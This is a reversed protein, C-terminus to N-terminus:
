AVLPCAGTDFTVRHSSVYSHAHGQCGLRSYCVCAVLLAQRRSCAVPRVKGLVESARELTAVFSRCWRVLKAAAAPNTRHDTALRVLIGVLGAAESLGPITSHEAIAEASRLVVEAISVTGKSHGEGSDILSRTSVTRNSLRKGGADAGDVSDAASDISPFQIATLSGSQPVVHKTQAAVGNGESSSSLTSSATTGGSPDGGTTGTPGAGAIVAAYAPPVSIVAATARNISRDADRALGTSSSAARPPPPISHHVDSSGCAAPSLTGTDTPAAPHKEEESASGVMASAIASSMSPCLGQGAGATSPFQFGIGGADARSPIQVGGGGADARTPLQSGGVHLPVAQRKTRRRRVCMLVGVLALAVAAAMGGAIAGTEQQMSRSSSPLTPTPPTKLEVGPNLTSPDATPFPVPAGSPALINTRNTTPPALTVLPSISPETTGGPSMLLAVTLTPTPIISSAVTPTMTLIIPPAVTPRPTIVEALSADLVVVAMDKTGALTTDWAGSTFRALIASGDPRAAARYLHDDYETGGQRVCM